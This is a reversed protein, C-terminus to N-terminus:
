YGKVEQFTLDYGNLTMESQVRFGTYWKNLYKVFSTINQPNCNVELSVRFPTSYLKFQTQPHPSQKINVNYTPYHSKFYDSVYQVYSEYIHKIYVSNREM